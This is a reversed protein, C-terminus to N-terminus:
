NRYNRIVLEPKPRRGDRRDSICHVAYVRRIDYGAYLNRIFLTDSNCLMVLCGRKDLERFVKGLRIQQREDFRDRTYYTDRDTNSRPQYPPDLFVFTGPRAYNLALSYDGHLLQIGPRALIRSVLRLNAEDVRWRNAKWGYWVKLQGQGIERLIARYCTKNLYLFRSAREVPTLQEPKLALIRRFYEFTDEHKRLDALLEELNDRLVRYFNILEGNKDILVAQTPGRHFFLSSVLHFFVAGGGLFPEIYLDWPAKPFLPGLQRLIGRKGGVWWVPPRPRV